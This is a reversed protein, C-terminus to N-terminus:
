EASHRMSPEGGGLVVVRREVGFRCSRGAGVCPGTYRPDGRGLSCIFAQIVPTERSPALVRMARSPWKHNAQPPRRLSSGARSARDNLRHDARVHHISDNDCIVATAPARAFAETLMSLLAIFDAARCRDM